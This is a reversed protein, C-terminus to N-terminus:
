ILFTMSKVGLLTNKIASMVSQGRKEMMVLRINTFYKWCDSTTSKDFKKNSPSERHHTM